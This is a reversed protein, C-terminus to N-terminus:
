IGIPQASPQHAAMLADIFLRATSEPQRDRHYMVAVPRYLAPRLELVQLIGAERERQVSWVPLIALHDTEAVFRKITDINDFTHAPEVPVQHEALYDQLHLAIPLDAEFGALEADALRRVNIRKSTSWPHGPRCIAAMREDRLAIAALGPWRDPYSLLGIECEGQCVANYVQVPHLYRVHVRAGAHDQEFRRCVANLLQCGASYIAAVHLVHSAQESKCALSEVLEHYQEVIRRCGHYYEQGADTLTPPRTSRDLLQVGLERELAMVRQSVASQSVDHMRAAVSFSRHQAVDCFLQLAELQM